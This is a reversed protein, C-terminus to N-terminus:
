LKEIDSERKASIFIFKLLNRIDRCDSGTTSYKYEDLMYGGNEKINNEIHYRLEILFEENDLWSVESNIDM